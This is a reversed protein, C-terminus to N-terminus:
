DHSLMEWYELIFPYFFQTFLKGLGRSLDPDDKVMQQALTKWREDLDDADILWEDEKDSLGKICKPCKCDFLYRAKLEIQRRDYPNSTDIYNITVEEDKKIPRLSRLQMEPGDMVLIANPDCSHNARSAYPDLVVGLPDFTQTVLTMSNTLIRAFMKEAFDQNFFQETESYKLTGTAFMSIDAWSAKNARREDIHHELELLALWQDTPM